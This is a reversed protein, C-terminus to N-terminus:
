LLGTSDMAVGARNAVSVPDYVIASGYRYGAIVGLPRGFLNFQDGISFSQSFNLPAKRTTTNWNNAFSKGTEPVNANIIKFADSRYSGNLYKNNAINYADQDNILAPDLLKLQVLAMRYYTNGNAGDYMWNDKTVGLSNFYVGLDELVALQEYDSPHVVAQNFSSHDHDRLNNDYGLWDTSSRQSSVVNKFTSKEDYGFSAEVNVNLQDPYDKTEISLFAGAWDGPLDPNQTKTIIVNDILSAPFLDLKINNTFPDLTPIRSGNIATKVYRDGIGRVTIFAGNTSVGAVRAVATTVNVDGTKKMTESSVYDLTTPSKVKVKEMYYEKAKVAKATVEVEKIEQSSSSLVFNLIVVEGNQPHITKKVTEFGIYSVVITQEVSDTIKLTYNGDLDTTTGTSHITSLVVPAGIVAEGNKDTVKGRITGQAISFTFAIIHIAALLLFKKM